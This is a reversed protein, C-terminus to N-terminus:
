DRVEFGTGRDNAPSTDIMVSAFASETGRVSVATVLYEYRVGPEVTTDIYRNITIPEDNLRGIQNQEAEHRYMNYGVVNPQTSADWSLSVGEACLMARLNFPAILPAENQPAPSIASDESCGLVFGSFCLLVIGIIVHKRITM